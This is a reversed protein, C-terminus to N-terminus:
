RARTPTRGPRAAYLDRTMREEERTMQLGKAVEDPITASVATTGAKAPAPSDPLAFAALGAGAALVATTTIIAFTRTTTKM